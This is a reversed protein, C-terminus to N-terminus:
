NALFLSSDVVNRRERRDMTTENNVQVGTRKHRGVTYREDFMSLGEVEVAVAALPDCCFSLM